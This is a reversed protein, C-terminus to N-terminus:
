VVSGASESGAAGSGEVEGLSCGPCYCHVIWAAADSVLVFGAYLEVM